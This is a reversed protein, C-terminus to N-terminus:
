KGPRDSYSRYLAWGNIEKIESHNLLEKLVAAATTGTGIEIAKSHGGMFHFKVNIPKKEQQNSFIQPIM